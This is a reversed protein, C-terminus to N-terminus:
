QLVRFKDLNDRLVKQFLVEDILIKELKKIIEDEDKSVLVLIPEKLEYRGIKVNSFLLHYSREIMKVEIIFNEMIEVRLGEPFGMFRDFNKYFFGIIRKM